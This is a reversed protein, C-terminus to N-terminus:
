CKPRVLGSSPSHSRLQCGKTAISKMLRQRKICGYERPNAKCPSACPAQSAGDCGPPRLGCGPRERAFTLLSEQTCPFRHSELRKGEENILSAQVVHKHLDLGVYRTM